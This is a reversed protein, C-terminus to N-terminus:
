PLSDLVSEFKPIVDDQPKPHNGIMLGRQHIIEAGPLESQAEYEHGELFPQRCINGAMIPRTEIGRSELGDMLEDRDISADQRLVTPLAFWSHKCGDSSRSPDNLALLEERSNVFDAWDHGNNQRHELFEDMRPLQHLGFAASLETPRLNYGTTQFLYRKDLGSYDRAIEDRDERERIWGHARKSRLLDALCDDQTVVVGGEGTTIHHSFFFSFTGADGFTGVKQNNIESGLAECCDEILFLDEEEAIQRLRDVRSPSGLLHVAMFGAADERNAFRELQSLDMQFSTPSVDGFVPTMGLQLLPHVTTSWTVAPTFVASRDSGQYEVLADVALLNASSGSNVMVANAVDLWEEFAREFARVKPGMTIRTSLLTDIAELIENEDFTVDMLPHEYRGDTEGRRELAEIVIDRLKDDVGQSRGM